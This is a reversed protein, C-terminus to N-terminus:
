SAERFIRSSEIRGGLQYTFNKLKQSFTTYAAYVQDKFKYRSDLGPISQYKSAVPNYFFNENFSSYNRVAGRLGAELKIKDSIPDTYDTQAIVYKTTGGGAIKQLFLLLKPLIITM